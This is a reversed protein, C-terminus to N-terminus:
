NISYRISPKEVAEQELRHQKEENEDSRRSYEELMLTISKMIKGVIEKQEHSLLSAVDAISVLNEETDEGSDEPIRELALASTLRKREIYLRYSYSNKAEEKTVHIGHIARAEEFIARETEGRWFELEQQMNNYASVLTDSSLAVRLEARLRALSRQMIRKFDQSEGRKICIPLPHRETKANFVYVWDVLQPKEINQTEIVKKLHTKIVSFGVAGTLGSVFINHTRDEIRAGLSLASVFRDQGLGLFAHPIKKFDKFLSNDPHPLLDKAICRARVDRATLKSGNRKETTM